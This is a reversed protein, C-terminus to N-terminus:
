VGQKRSLTGIVRGIKERPVTMLKDTQVQSPVSLGNDPVPGVHFRIASNGTFSKDVSLDDRKM